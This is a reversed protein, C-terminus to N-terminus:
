NLIIQKIILGKGNEDQLSFLYTGKPESSLDFQYNGTRVNTVSRVVRGHIDRINLMGTEVLNSFKVSLNVIGDSPNPFLEWDIHTIEKANVETKDSYEGSLENAPNMLGPKAAQIIEM